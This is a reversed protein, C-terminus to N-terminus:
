GSYSYLNCTYGPLVPNESAVISVSVPLVPNVTVVFMSTIGACGNAIPTVVYTVTESLTSSSLITQSINTGSGGSFGTVLPSSASVTWTFSSGAVHSFININTTQGACITQASPVFYADAIPFVTVVYDTM